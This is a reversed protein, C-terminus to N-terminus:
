PVKLLEVQTWADQRGAVAARIQKVMEPEVPAAAHGWERRLYTFIAALQEDNLVGWAPMDLSYRLTGVQIPGRVGNIAIRGLREVSGTVWESDALPPALGELGLGHPQHCAACIAAYLQKGTEFRAQQAPALPEIPVEGAAGPKGPWTLLPGIKDLAANLPANSAQRMKVLAAPKAALKMPRRPTVAPTTTFGGLLVVQQPAPLVAIANLLREVREPNREALVCGALSALLADQTKDAAEALLAEALELEHGGLGTLVAERLYVNDPTRRSLAAMAVDAAREHAEGLSLALQLQVEPVAETGALAIWKALLAPRDNGQLFTEDARVAAARVRPDPDDLARMAVKASLRQLGDLTWLAHLRGMPEAGEAALTALAPVVSADGREVLLRQATERWWANRHSLHAVWQAPTETSLHPPAPRKKENEPVVRWIRGLGTPQDLGRAKVQDELYKSVSIRHQIIGHYMDCIYLAGDPGTTLNVPRFREDTSAIFERQEYAERAKLTGHEATVFDRKILNGAPECVFANGYFEAPFLDGRYIWPACASTFEKLKYDRLMEPVYGRNIGPNVRAPWVFQDEAVGINRGRPRPYNPNRGFYHSPVPQAHLQSSNSNNFLHGWDDQSLGWQGLPSIAAREWQGDRWRLKATYHGTYIWNDFAWLPNNPKNEPESMAPNGVDIGYGFDNAVEIKEDAKGDGDTDRCYWLFPPAGILAGGRVLMIARPMVLGDLFVQSQDMVGDGDTDTLVSVRGVPQDEGVGDLNPMYGRMEVVWMRGEPDFQVAVPHAIMPESAVLEVRIGPALQFTKLEDDASLAPSPPILEPPVIPVQPRNYASAPPAASAAYALLTLALALPKKM